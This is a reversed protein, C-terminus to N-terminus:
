VKCKPQEKREDIMRLDVPLDRDELIKKIAEKLNHLNKTPDHKESREIPFVAAAVDQMADLAVEVDM